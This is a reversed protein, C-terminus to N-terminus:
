RGQTLMTKVDHFKTVIHVCRHTGNGSTCTTHTNFHLPNLHMLIKKIHGEEKDLEVAINKYNTIGRRIANAVETKSKTM